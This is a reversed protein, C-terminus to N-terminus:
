SIIGTSLTVTVIGSDTQLKCDPKNDYVVHGDVIQLKSQVTPWVNDKQRLQADPQSAITAITVRDGPKSNPPPTLLQLDAETKGVLIMAESTTKCIAAPKLNCLFCCLRDQLTEIKVHEVLGSVVTRLKEEGMDVQEIYLRDANPHKVVSVIKGVRIDVRAAPDLDATQATEEKKTEKKQDKKKEDKKQDVKKEKGDAPINDIAATLSTMDFPKCVVSGTIANALSRMYDGWRVVRWLKERAVTPTLTAIRNHLMVWLVWDAASPKQGVGAVLFTRGSLAANLPAMAIAHPDASRRLAPQIVTYAFEIWPLSETVPLGAHQCIMIAAQMASLHRGDSVYVKEHREVLDESLAITASPLLKNLLVLEAHDVCSVTLLTNMKCTFLFTVGTSPLIIYIFQHTMM